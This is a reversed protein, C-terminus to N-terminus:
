EVFFWMCLPPGLLDISYLRTTYYAIGDLYCSKLDRPGGSYVCDITSWFTMICCIVSYSILFESSLSLLLSSVAFSLIISSSPLDLSFVCNSAPLFLLISFVSCLMLSTHLITLIDLPGRILIRFLPSLSLIPSLCYKLLQYTLIKGFQHFVYVWM